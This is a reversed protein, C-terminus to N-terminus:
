KLILLKTLKEKTINPYKKQAWDVMDDIDEQYESIVELITKIAGFETEFPNTDDDALFTHTGWHLVKTKNM